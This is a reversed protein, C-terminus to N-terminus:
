DQHCLIGNDNCYSIARTIQASISLTDILSLKQESIVNDLTDTRKPALLFPIGHVTALDFFRHILVHHCVSHANNIEYLARSIKHKQKDAPLSPDVYIGKAVIPPHHKNNDFTYIKSNPSEMKGLIKGYKHLRASILLDQQEETYNWLMM